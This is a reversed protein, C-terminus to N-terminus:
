DNSVVTHEEVTAAVAASQLERGKAEGPLIHKNRLQDLWPLLLLVQTLNKASYYINHQTSQTGDIINLTCILGRPGTSPIPCSLFM